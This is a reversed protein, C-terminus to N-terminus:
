RHFVRTAYSTFKPMLKRKPNKPHSAMALRNMFIEKYKDVDLPGELFVLNNIIARNQPTDQLWISDSGSVMLVNDDGLNKVILKKLINRYIRFVLM